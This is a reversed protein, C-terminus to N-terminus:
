VENKKEKKEKKEKIKEIIKECEAMLFLIIGPLFTMGILIWFIISIIKFIKNLIQKLIQIM